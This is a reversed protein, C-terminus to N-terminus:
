AVAPKRLLTVFQPSTLLQFRSRVHELGLRDTLARVVAPRLKHLHLDRARLPNGYLVIADLTAFLGRIPEAPYVLLMSGGPRLVRAMEALAEPLQPFHEIAHIAVVKDFSEDAFDLREARMIRVDRAIAAQAAQPNADVGVALCGLDELRRTLHGPGCGVELIREGPRPDLYRRVTTLHRSDWGQYRAYRLLDPM